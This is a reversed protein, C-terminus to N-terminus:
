FMFGGLWFKEIRQNVFGGVTIKWFTSIFYFKIELIIKM